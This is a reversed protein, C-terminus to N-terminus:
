DKLDYFEKYHHTWYEKYAKAVDPWFPSMKIQADHPWSYKGKCNGELCQDPRDPRMLVESCSMSHGFKCFMMAEKAGGMFPYPNGNYLYGYRYLEIRAADHNTVPM